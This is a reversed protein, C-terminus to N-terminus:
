KLPEPALKTGSLNIHTLALSSSFFQRFSPPVEKGKRHSFVTRSLNLVALYQLCGRLLAACVMDLACETGSLDLHTLANPQALFSYM